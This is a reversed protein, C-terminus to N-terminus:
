LLKERPEIGRFLFNQASRKPDQSIKMLKLLLDSPPDVKFLRRLITKLTPLAPLAPPTVTITRTEERLWQEMAVFEEELTQHAQAQEMQLRSYKEKLMNLENPDDPTINSTAETSQILSDILLLLDELCQLFM